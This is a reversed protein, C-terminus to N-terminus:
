GITQKWYKLCNTVIKTEHSHGCRRRRCGFCQDLRRSVLLLQNVQCELLSPQWAYGLHDVGDVFAGLLNSISLGLGLHRNHWRCRRNRTSVTLYRTALDLTKHFGLIHKFELTRTRTSKVKVHWYPLPICRM